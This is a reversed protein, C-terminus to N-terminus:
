EGDDAVMTEHSGSRQEQQQQIKMIDERNTIEKTQPDVIPLIKKQKPTHPNSPHPAQPIVTPASSMMVQPTYPLNLRQPYEAPQTSPYVPM